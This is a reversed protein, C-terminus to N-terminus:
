RHADDGPMLSGKEHASQLVESIRGRGRLLILDLDLSIFVQQLFYVFM